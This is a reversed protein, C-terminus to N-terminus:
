AAAPPTPGAAQAPRFHALIEAEDAPDFEWSRGDQGRHAPLRGSVVARWFMQYRLGLGHKRNLLFLMDAATLRRGSAAALPESM